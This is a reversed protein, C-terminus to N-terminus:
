YRFGVGDFLDAGGVLGPSAIGRLFPPQVLCLAFPLSFHVSSLVYALLLLHGAVGGGGGM